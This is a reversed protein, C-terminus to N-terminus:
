LFGISSDAFSMGAQLEAVIIENSAGSYLAGSYLAPQTCASTPM